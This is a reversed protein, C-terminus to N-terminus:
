DYKIMIILLEIVAVIPDRTQNLLASIFIYIAAIAFFGMLITIGIEVTRVSVRKKLM